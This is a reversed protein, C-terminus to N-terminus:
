DPLLNGAPGGSEGFEEFAFTAHVCVHRRGGPFFKSLM